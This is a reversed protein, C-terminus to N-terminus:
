SKQWARTAAMWAQFYQPDATLNLQEWADIVDDPFLGVRRMVEATFPVPRIGSATTIGSDTVVPADRYREGGAYGTMQLYEAANSTHDREDLLGNRALLFTAGCIAAIPVDRALLARTTEVLREHGTEYRDGGPIVLAALSEDDVIDALDASPAIPLGGMSTVAALGDGVIVLSFRGPKMQEADSLQTTLYAYEWDAMTDTAYLAIKAPHM